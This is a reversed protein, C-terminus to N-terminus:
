NKIPAVNKSGETNFKLVFGLFTPNVKKFFPFLSGFM